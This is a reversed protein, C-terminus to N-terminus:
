PYQSSSRERTEQRKGKVAGRDKEDLNLTPLGDSIAEPHSPEKTM